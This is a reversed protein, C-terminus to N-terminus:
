NMKQDEKGKLSPPDYHGKPSMSGQSKKTSEKVANVDSNAYSIFKLMENGENSAVRRLKSLEQNNSFWPHDLTERINLRQDKNKILLKSVIDKAEASVGDWVSHNFSIEQYITKRGIEKDDNSDFPLHRSLMLYTIIGLSWCDVSKDYPKQLLIEPAVYCLTGFPENCCEGPGFTKSLGFDVIKIPSDFSQDIMLINEPKLDRHAIGFSHLYYIATGIQHAINKAREEPIKFNKTELYNFFDGGKLYEMVIYIYDSNEFVDFFRIINPHQCLKLVEIERKLLEIDKLSLEKKKVIKVAVERLSKKHVGKKVLGYKGKGLSEKLEYFDHLNAYGIAQKIREVWKDREERTELYYIRRKNPFILMFPFYVVNDDLTEELESKIFVGALSQMDKHKQDGQAKYSYLEKGLLVYWYKRLSGGKKQKKIIKGEIHISGKGECQDCTQQDPRMPLGCVCHSFGGGGDSRPSLQDAM